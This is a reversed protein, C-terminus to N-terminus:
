TTKPPPKAMSFKEQWKPGITLASRNKMVPENGGGGGGGDFGREGGESAAPRGPPTVYKRKTRTLSPLRSAKCSFRMVDSRLVQSRAGPRIKTAATCYTQAMLLRDRAGQGQVATEMRSANAFPTHTNGWAEGARQMEQAM